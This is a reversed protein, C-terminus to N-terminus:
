GATPDIQARSTYMRIPRLLVSLDIRAKEFIDMVEQPKWEQLSPQLGIQLMPHERISVSSLSTLYCSKQYALETLWTYEWPEVNGDTQQFRVESRRSKYFM